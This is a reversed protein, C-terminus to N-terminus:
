IGLVTKRVNRVNESFAKSWNAIEYDVVRRTENM